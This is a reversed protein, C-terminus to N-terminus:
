RVIEKKKQTKVLIQCTSSQRPLAFLDRLVAANEERTICRSYVVIKKLIVSNKAFYRALKLLMEFEDKEYLMGKIEVFELSSLLCQPVSSLITQGVSCNQLDLILSRLNPCSELITPLYDVSPFYLQAELCSLECFQPLPLMREIFEFANWSIKMDRVGSISTFFNRVIYRKQLDVEGVNDRLFFAGLLNVTSLSGSNSIIKGVSLDYEFTLYKLRPADIIVASNEYDFDDDEDLDDYECEVSLSTLTQSHVRLVKVNDDVRRVFRLDELVPCSSILSKLSEENAYVNLELRMTKVCPLSVSEFTALSVRSLRLYHLSQCIYLSLPMVQFCHSKVLLCEVDLHQLKSTAVTDIWRSVCSCKDNSISLKLKHLCSKQEVSFDLFRDMFSVFANYDPFESTELDLAPLLLWLSKWRNSLVCTKVAEKTPLYLLMQSLLSEPLKSIMDEEKADNSSVVLRNEKAKRKEMSNSIPKPNQFIWLRRNRKLSFSLNQVYVLNSDFAKMPMMMDKMKMLKKLFKKFKKPKSLSIKFRVPKELGVMPKDTAGRLRLKLCSTGEEAVEFTVVPVIKEVQRHLFGHLLLEYASGRDEHKRSFCTEIFERADCPLCEPIEPAKGDLLLTVLDDYGVGEWPKEGTYMELVLCGLSWLDLTKNAVGDYLSEPPMYVPTGVFPFEMEWYGPVEGVELSNGFDSIKIEYSSDYDDSLPFVLLNDSKLDCHVYGHGHISVLGELIMRTFDRIMPEPLKRDLYKDMFGSLSGESAYELHLKYVKHGKDNFSEELYDGFCKVINPYGRLESLIQIERNLSDYVDAYSTKVASLFSSGDTNTYKVLDVTGYEGKGLRKVFEEKM